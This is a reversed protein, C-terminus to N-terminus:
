RRRHLTEYLDFSLEAVECLVGSQSGFEPDAWLPVEMQQRASDPKRWTPIYVGQDDDMPQRSQQALPQPVPLRQGAAAPPRPSCANPKNLGSSNEDSDSSCPDRRITEFLAANLVLNEAFGSFRQEPTIWTATARFEAPAPPPVPPPASDAPFSSPPRARPRPPQLSIPSGSMFSAAPPHAPSRKYSDLEMEAYAYLASAQHQPSAPSSSFVSQSLPPSSAERGQGDGGPRGPSVEQALNTHAKPVRRLRSGVSEPSLSLASDAAVSAALVVDDMAAPEINTFESVILPLTTSSTAHQSCGAEEDNKGRRTQPEKDAAPKMAGGPAAAAKSHGSSVRLESMSHALDREAVQAPSQASSPDAEEPVVSLRTSDHESSGSKSSHNAEANARSTSEALDLSSRTEVVIVPADFGEESASSEASRVSRYSAGSGSSKKSGLSLSRKVFTLAKQSRRRNAALQEFRQPPLCISLYRSSVVASCAHVPCVVTSARTASLLTKVHSQVCSFCLSHGADCQVTWDLGEHRTCTLCMKVDEDSSATSSSTKPTQSSPMTNKRSRAGTTRGDDDDDSLVESISLAKALPSKPLTRPISHVPSALPSAIPPPPQPRVNGNRSVGTRSDRAMLRRKTLYRQQKQTNGLMAEDPAHLVSAINYPHAGGMMHRQQHPSTPSGVKMRRVKHILSKARNCITQPRPSLSPSFSSYLQPSLLPPGAQGSPEANHSSYADSLVQHPLITAADGTSVLGHNVLPPQSGGEGAATAIPPHTSSPATFGRRRQHVTSPASRHAADSNQRHRRLAFLGGRPSATSRQLMGRVGLKPATQSGPYQQSSSAYSLMPDSPADNANVKVWSSEHLGSEVWRFTKSAFLHPQVEQQRRVYDYM